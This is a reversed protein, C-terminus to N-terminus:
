KRVIKTLNHANLIGDLVEVLVKLVVSVFQYSV